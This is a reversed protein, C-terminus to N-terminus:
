SNFHCVAIFSCNCFIKGRSSSINASNTALLLAVSSIAALISLVLSFASTVWRGAAISLLNVMRVTCPWVLSPSAMLEGVGGDNFWFRSLPCTFTVFVM